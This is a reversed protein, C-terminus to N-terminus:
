RNRVELYATISLPQKLVFSPGFDYNFFSFDVGPKKATGRLVLTYTPGSIISLTLYANSKFAFEDHPAFELDISFKEQKKM